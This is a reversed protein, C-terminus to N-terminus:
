GEIVEVNNATADALEMIANIAGSPVRGIPEYYGGPQIRIGRTATAAVGDVTVRLVQASNNQILFYKRLANAAAVVQNVNTVSKQVESFAGQQGIIDVSGTVQNYEDDGDGVAIQISQATASKISFGNFGGAPKNKYGRGVNDATAIVADSRKLEVSVPDAATLIHFYKGSGHFEILQGASFVIVPTKM